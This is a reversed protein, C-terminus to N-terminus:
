PGRVELGPDEDGTRLLRFVIFEAPVAPAAGVLLIAHGADQAARPTTSADCRVFYAEAANRGALAGADFVSRLRRTAARAMSAWLAPGNPEFPAFALDQLLQAKLWDFLRRVSLHTWDPDLSTTRSGLLLLGRETPRIVDVREEHLFGADPLGPDDLLAFASRVPQNAPAAWPRSAAETRAVIGAAIAAPPLAVAAASADGADAALLWPAYLAARDSALARRWEAIAGPTLRPPLDLLAIRTGGAECHQVVAQQALLLDDLGDGLHPYPLAHRAVAQPPAVCAGFCPPGPEPKPEPATPAPPTPHLLDPLVVLSVPSLPQRADWAGLADLAPPRDAFVLFRHDADEARHGPEIGTAELFHRRLTTDAADKGRRSPRLDAGAAVLGEPAALLAEDPVLWAHELLASPRLLESGAPDEPGGWIRDPSGAPTEPDSGTVPPPLLRESAARRGLLRPLYRPHRTDLGAEDWRELVRGDLAVDLRLLIEEAGAASAPGDFGPPPSPSLTLAATGRGAPGAATVRTIHWGATGPIRLTTGPLGRHAPALWVSGPQPLLPLPRRLATLRLLLGNGWGGPNRAAIRVVRRGPTAGDVHLGPLRFRATRANLHDMCRIAVCRRGGEAFFAAVAQPMALAPAPAGFVQAFEAASEVPVPTNLPGRRALGIFAATDLRVLRPAARIARAAYVGPPLGPRWAAGTAFEARRLTSSM